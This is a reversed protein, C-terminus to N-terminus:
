VSSFVLHLVVEAHFSYFQWRAGVFLWGSHHFIQFFFAAFIDLLIIPFVFIINKQLEKCPYGLETSYLLVLWSLAILVLRVGSLLFIWSVRGFSWGFLISYKSGINYVRMLINRTVIVLMSDNNNEVDAFFLFHFWPLMKKRDIISM